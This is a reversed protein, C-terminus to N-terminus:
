ATRRTSAMAKVTLSALVAYAFPGTATPGTVPTGTINSDTFTNGSPAGILKVNGSVDRRYVAYSTAGHSPTWDIVVDHGAVTIQKFNAALSELGNVRSTVTYMYTGTFASGGGESLVQDDPSTPAVIVDGVPSLLEVYDIGPYAGRAAGMIDDVVINRGISGYTPVFLAAVADAAANEADPFSVGSRVYIRLSVGAATQVVPYLHFKTPATPQKAVWNLFANKENTTWVTSTLLGVRSWGSFREDGPAYERQPVVRADIVGPYELLMMAEIQRPTSKGNRGAFTHAGVKRLLAASIEDQGGVLGTTTTGTISTDSASVVSANALAPNNAIAGRTVGFQIAVTDSTKPRYGYEQTGFMLQLRGQRTTRDWVALENPYRSLIDRVVPVSSGNCTVFVDDDCVAYDGEASTWSQFDQTGGTVIYTRPSGEYLRVTITADGAPWVLAERSYLAVTNCSFESFRPLSYPVSTDGDRTLTADIYAARKRSIRNGHSTALAYVSSDRLALESYRERSAQEIQYMDLAAWGAVMGILQRGTTTPLLDTWTGEASLSQEFGSALASQDLNPSLTIM